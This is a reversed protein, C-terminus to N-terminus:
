FVGLHSLLIKLGMVILIIGGLIQANKEYKIGFKCGLKVGIFSMGFTIVGILIISIIINVKLFAFTIGVALADISTAVALPLMVKFSLDCCDNDEESSFAEVLMNAGIIGLLVFAVWHDFKVIIDGFLSGLLYGILPMIAQFLGFYLGVIVCNKLTIKKLTLGKCISTAFADMSVGFSTIILEIIGM